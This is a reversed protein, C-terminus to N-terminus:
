LPAWPGVILDVAVPGWYRGDFSTASDGLLFVEGPRLTRCGTWLLHAHGSPDARLRMVRRRGIVEVSNGSACIRDGAVAAIRKLFRDTPDAFGRRAAEAPAARAAHVTVFDGVDPAGHGRVYFGRPVSDSPNYILLPQVTAVSWAGALLAAGALLTALRIWRSM